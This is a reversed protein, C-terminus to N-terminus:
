KLLLNCSASQSVTIEVGPLFASHITAVDSEFNVLNFSLILALASLSFGFKTSQIASKLSIVNRSLFPSLSM